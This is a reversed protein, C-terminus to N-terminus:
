RDTTHLDKRRELRDGRAIWSGVFASRAILKETAGMVQDISITRLCYPQDFICRDACPRCWFAPHMVIECRDSLPGFWSPETPGFVGIVPVGLGSAIHMPGSDNCILFECRALVAMFERLPLTVRIFNHAFDAPAETPEQFWLIKAGFRTTLQEGVAAFNATGWQRTKIRAGPHIGVVLEGDVIGKGTLYEDAFTQEGPLLKLVPERDDVRHGLHELLRLWCDARHIRTLDPEVLETLLFGGGLLGYGVRRNIGTLWLFFNDRLDGRGSLALDYGKGRLRKACRGLELWCRSLPNYRAWQSFHQSWPFRVPILEDVLFLNELLPFTGPNALLSIEAGPFQKRLARLFPLIGVMDGLNGPELVLIKRVAAPVNGSSGRVFDVFRVGPYLLFEALRIVFRRGYSFKVLCGRAAEEAEKQSLGFPNFTM